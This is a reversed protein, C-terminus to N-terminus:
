FSNIENLARIEDRVLTRIREDLERKLPVFRRELHDALADSLDKELDAVRKEDIMFAALLAPLEMREATEKMRARGYRLLMWGASAGLLAGAALGIPGATILATSSGGCLMAAGATLLGGVATGVVDLMGDAAPTRVRLMPESLEDPLVFSLDKRPLAVGHSAFWGALLDRVEERLGELFRPALRALHERALPEAATTREDIRMRLLALSGGQKRFEM